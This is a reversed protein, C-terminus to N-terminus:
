IVMKSDIRRQIDNEETKMKKKRDIIYECRTQFLERIM